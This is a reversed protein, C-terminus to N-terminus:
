KRHLRRHYRNLTITGVNSETLANMLTYKVTVPGFKEPRYKFFFEPQREVMLITAEACYEEKDSIHRIEGSFFPGGHDLIQDAEGDLHPIRCELHGEVDCKHNPAFPKENVTLSYSRTGIYKVDRAEVEFKFEGSATPIGSLVNKELRVGAPLRGKTVKYAWQTESSETVSLEVGYKGGVTAHHGLVQPLIEVGQIVNVQLFQVAKKSNADTIEVGFSFLGQKDPTFSLLGDMTITGNGPIVGEVKEFTYPGKGGTVELIYTTKNLVRPAAMKLPAIKIDDGDIEYDKAWMVGYDRRPNYDEKITILVTEMGKHGDVYFHLPFTGFVRPNVKFNLIYIGPGDSVLSTSELFGKGEWKQSDHLSNVGGGLVYNQLNEVEREGGPRCYVRFTKSSIVDNPKIEVSQIFWYIKKTASSKTRVAVEYKGSARPRGELTFADHMNLGPPLEGAIIETGRFSSGEGDDPSPTWNVTEGVKGFLTPGRAFTSQSLVTLRREASCIFAPESTGKKLLTIRVFYKYVGAKEPIGRIRPYTASISLGEPLYHSSNKDRVEEWKASRDEISDLCSFKPDDHLYKLGQVGQPPNQPTFKLGQPLAIEYVLLSATMEHDLVIVDFSFNGNYDATAGPYVKGKINGASDMESIIANKSPPLFFLYPEEWGDKNSVTVRDFFPEESARALLKGPQLGRMELEFVLYEKTTEFTDAHYRKGLLTFTYIKTNLDMNRPADGSDADWEYSSTGYITAFGFQTMESPDGPPFGVSFNQRFFDGKMLGMDALRFNPPLKGAVYEISEYKTGINDEILEYDYIYLNRMAQKTSYFNLGNKAYPLRFRKLDGTAVVEIYVRQLCKIEPYKKHQVKIKFIYLGADAVNTRGGILGSKSFTLGRPVGVYTPVGSHAGPVVPVVSDDSPVSIELDAQDHDIGSKVKEVEEWDISLCYPNNGDALYDQNSVAVPLGHMLIPWFESNPVGITLRFNQM